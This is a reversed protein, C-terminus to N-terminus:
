PGEVIEVGAFVATQTVIDQVATWQTASVNAKISDQHKNVYASVHRLMRILQPVYTKSAM